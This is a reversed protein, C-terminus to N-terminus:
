LDQINMKDLNKKRRKRERCTFYILLFIATPINFIFFFAVAEGILGLVNTAANGYAADLSRDYVRYGTGAVAICFWVTPIIM